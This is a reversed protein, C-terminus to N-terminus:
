MSLSSTSEVDMFPLYKKRLMRKLCNLFLCLFFPIEQSLFPFNDTLLIAEPQERIDMSIVMTGLCLERFPLLFPDIRLQKGLAIYSTQPGAWFYSLAALGM